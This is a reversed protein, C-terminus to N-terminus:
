ELANTMDGVKVEMLLLLGIAMDNPLNDNVLVWVDPGNHVLNATVTRQWMEACFGNTTRRSQM